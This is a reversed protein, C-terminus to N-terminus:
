PRNPTSRTHDSHLSQQRFLIGLWTLAKPDLIPMTTELAVYTDELLRTPMQWEAFSSFLEAGLM